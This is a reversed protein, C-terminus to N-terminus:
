ISDYIYMSDYYFYKYLVRIACANANLIKVRNPSEKNSGHKFQGRETTYKTYGRGLSM